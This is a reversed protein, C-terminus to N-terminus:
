IAGSSITNAGYDFGILNLAYNTGNYYLNAGSEILILIIIM